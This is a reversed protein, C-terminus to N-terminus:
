IGAPAFSASGEFGEHALTLEEISDANGTGTLDSTAKYKKPFAQYVTWERAPQNLANMQTIVVERRYSTVNPDNGGSRKMSMVQEHWAALVDSGGETPDKQGRKLTLDTYKTLGASKKPTDNDGGERYEVVDTEAELASCESFGYVSGGISIRYRFVKLPDERATRTGM